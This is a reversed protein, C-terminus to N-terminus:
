EADPQTEPRVREPMAPPRSPQRTKKAKGSPRVVPTEIEAVAVPPTVPVAGPLPQPGTEAKARAGAPKRTAKAAPKSTGASATPRAMRAAVVRQVPRSEARPAVPRSARGGGCPAILLVRSVGLASRGLCTAFRLNSEVVYGAARLGAASLLFPATVFHM